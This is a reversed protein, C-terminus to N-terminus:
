KAQTKYVIVFTLNSEGSCVFDQGLFMYYGASVQDTDDLPETVAGENPFSSCRSSGQMSRRVAYHKKKRECRRRPHKCGLKLMDPM